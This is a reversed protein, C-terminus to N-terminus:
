LVRKMEQADNLSMCINTERTNRFIGSFLIHISLRVYPLLPLRTFPRLKAKQRACQICVIFNRDKLRLHCFGAM